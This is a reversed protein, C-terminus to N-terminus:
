MLDIVIVGRQPEPRKDQKPPEWGPPPLPLELAPRQEERRREQQRKWGIIDPGLM